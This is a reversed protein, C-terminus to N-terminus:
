SQRGKRKKKLVGYELPVKELEHSQGHGHEEGSGRGLGWAGGQSEGWSTERVSLGEM